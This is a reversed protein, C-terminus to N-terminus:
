STAAYCLGLGLILVFVLQKLKEQPFGDLTKKGLWVAGLAPLTAWLVMQFIRASCDGGGFMLGLRSLGMVLFASQMMAISQSKSWGQSYSYVVIPPGGVNFAGGLIGALLGVPIASKEPLHLRPLIRGKLLESLAILILLVGLVRIIWTEEMARLGYYGIPIGLLGGFILPVAKQFSFATRNALFIASTIVLNFVTVLAIGEEVPIVLPLTALCVLAFGFGTASQLFSAAGLILVVFLLDILNM